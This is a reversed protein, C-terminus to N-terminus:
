EVQKQAIGTPNPLHSNIYFLIETGPFNLQCFRFLCAEDNWDVRNSGEEDEDDTQRADVVNERCMEMHRGHGLIQGNRSSTLQDENKAGQPDCQSEDWSQEDCTCIRGYEIDFVM